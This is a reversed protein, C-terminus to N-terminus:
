IRLSTYWLPDGVPGGSLSFSVELYMYKSQFPFDPSHKLFAYPSM